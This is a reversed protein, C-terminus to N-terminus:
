QLRIMRIKRITRNQKRPYRWQTLPMWLTEATSTHLTRGVYNKIEKTTLVFQDATKGDGYDYVHGKLDECRGDFKVGRTQSVNQKKSFSKKNSEQGSPKIDSKNENNLM